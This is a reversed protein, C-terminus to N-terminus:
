ERVILLFESVHRDPIVDLLANIVACLKIVRIMSSIRQTKYSLDTAFLDVVVL